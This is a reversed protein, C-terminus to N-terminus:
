EMPNILTTLLELFNAGNKIYINGNNVIVADVPYPYLRQSNQWSRDDVEVAYVGDDRHLLVVDTTGPMFTFYVVDHSGTDIRIKSRCTRHAADLTVSQLSSSAAAL